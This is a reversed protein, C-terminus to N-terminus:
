KAIKAAKCKHLDQIGKAEDVLELKTGLEGGGPPTLPGVSAWDPGVHQLIYYSKGGEVTVRLQSGGSTILATGPEREWCLYSRGAIIGIERNGDHVAIAVNHSAINAFLPKRMVYLRAKTPDEQTRNPDPMAVFQKSSMCSALAVAVLAWSIARSKKM